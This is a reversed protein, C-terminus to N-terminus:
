SNADRRELSQPQKSIISLSNPFCHIILGMVCFGTRSRRLNSSVKLPSATRFESGSVPRGSPGSSPACSPPAVPYFPMSPAIGGAFFADLGLLDLKDLPNNGMAAYLNVGRAEGTSGRSLFRGTSPNYYRYGNYVLDTEDDLYKTSFRFPNSKSFTGSSRIMEGFFGHECQAQAASGSSEFVGM